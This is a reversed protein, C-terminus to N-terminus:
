RHRVGKKLVDKPANTNKNEIYCKTTICYSERLNNRTRPRNNLFETQKNESLELLKIQKNPAENHSSRRTWRNRTSQLSWCSVMHLNYPLLRINKYSKVTHPLYLTGTFVIKIIKSKLILTESKSGCGPYFTGCFLFFNLKQVGGPQQPCPLRWNKFFIFKM